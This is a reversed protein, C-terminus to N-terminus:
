NNLVRMLLPSDEGNGMAEGFELDEVNTSIHTIENDTYLFGKEVLLQKYEPIKDALSKVAKAMLKADRSEKARTTYRNVFLVAVISAVNITNDILYRLIISNHEVTPRWVLDYYSKVLTFSVGTGIGALTGITQPKAHHQHWKTTIGDVWVENNNIYVDDSVMLSLRKFSEILGMINPAHTVDISSFGRIMDQHKKYEAYLEKKKTPQLVSHWKIQRDSMFEEESLPRPLSSAKMLLVYPLKSDSSVMMLTSEFLNVLKQNYVKIAEKCTLIIASLQSATPKKGEKGMMLDFLRKIPNQEVNEKCYRGIGPLRNFSNSGNRVCKFEEYSVMKLLVYLARMEFPTDIAIQIGEVNNDRIIIKM